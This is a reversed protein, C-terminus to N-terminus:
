GGRWIFVNLKIPCWNIKLHDRVLGSGAYFCVLPFPNRSLDAHLWVTNFHDKERNESVHKVLWITRCGNSYLQFNKCTTQNWQHSEDKFICCALMIIEISGSPFKNSFNQFFESFTCKGRFHNFRVVLPLMLFHEELAKWHITIDPKSLKLNKPCNRRGVRLSVSLLGTVM